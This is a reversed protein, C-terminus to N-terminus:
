FLTLIIQEFNYNVIDILKSIDDELLIKKLNIQAM